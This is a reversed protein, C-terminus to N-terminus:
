RMLEGAEFMKVLTRDEPIQETGQASRLTNTVGPKGRGGSRWRIENSKIRYQDDLYRADLCGDDSIRAHQGTQGCIRRNKSVATPASLFGSHRFVRSVFAPIDVYDARGTIHCAYPQFLLECCDFEPVVSRM